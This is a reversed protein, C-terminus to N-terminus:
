ILQQRRLQISIKRETTVFDRIGVGCGVCVCWGGGGRWERLVFM